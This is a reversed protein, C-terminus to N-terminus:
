GTPDTNANAIGLKSLLANKFDIEIPGNDKGVIELKNSIRAKLKNYDAIAARAVSKDENQAILQAHRQDVADDNFGTLEHIYTRINDNRLLRSAETAALSYQGEAKLDLDYAKAYSKAGIGFFGKARAYLHCFKQQRLNLEDKAESM